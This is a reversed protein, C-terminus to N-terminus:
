GSRWPAGRVRSRWRFTATRSRAASARRSARRGRPAGPRRRGGATPGRGGARSGPPGGASRARRPRPARAPPRRRWRSSGRGGVRQGRADRTECATQAPLYRVGHTIRRRRPTEEPSPMVALRGVSSRGIRDLAQRDRPRGQGRQPPDRRAARVDVAVSVASRRRPDRARVRSPSTKPAEGECLVTIEDLQAPREVVLQYHPAVGDCALLLTARDASPYLNVGRVILM